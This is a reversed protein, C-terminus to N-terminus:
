SLSEPELARYLADEISNRFLSGAGRNFQVLSQSIDDGSAELKGEIWFDSDIKFGRRQKQPHMVLGYNVRLFHGGASLSVSYSGAFERINESGIIKKYQQGVLKASILKSFDSEELGLMLPDIVNIYRLGCRSIYAPNYMKIFIRYISQLRDSFEEWRKYDKCSLSISSSSLGIQWVNDDSMFDFSKASVQNSSSKVGSEESAQIVIEHGINERLLPFDSKIKDQFNAPLDADLRLLKPFRFQCVVEVLPNTAYKVRPQVDFPFHLEM